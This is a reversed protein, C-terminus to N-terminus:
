VHTFLKWIWSNKNFIYIMFQLVNGLMASFNQMIIWKKGCCFNDWWICTVDLKITSMFESCFSCETLLLNIAHLWHTLIRIHSAALWCNTNSVPQSIMNIFCTPKKSTHHHSGVLLLSFNVWGAWVQFCSVSDNVLISRTMVVNM